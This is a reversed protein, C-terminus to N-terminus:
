MIPRRDLALVAEEVPESSPNRAGKRMAFCRWMRDGAAKHPRRGSAVVEFAAPLQASVSQAQQAASPSPGLAERIGALSAERDFDDAATGCTHDLFHGGGGGVAIPRRNAAGDARGCRDAARGDGPRGGRVPSGARVRGRRAAGSDVAGPGKAVSSVYLPAVVRVNPM